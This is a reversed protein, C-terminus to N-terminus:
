KVKKVKKEPKAAVIEADEKKREASAYIQDVEKEKRAIELERKRFSESSAAKDAEFTKKINDLDALKETYVAIVSERLEENVRLTEAMAQKQDNLQAVDGSFKMRQLDFDQKDELLQKSEANVRSQTVYLEDKLRDLDASKTQLESLLASQKKIDAQLKESQAQFYEREKKYQDKDDNLKQRLFLVDQREKKSLNIHEDAEARLVIIKKKQEEIELKEQENARNAQSRLETLENIKQAHSQIQENLTQEQKALRDIEGELIGRFQGETLGIQELIPLLGIKEVISM